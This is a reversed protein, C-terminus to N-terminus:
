GVVAYAKHDGHQVTIVARGPGVPTVKGDPDVSAVTVDSSYYVTGTIGLSLPREVGNSYIGKVGIEEQPKPQASLEETSFFLEDKLIFIRAPPDSPNPIATLTHIYFEESGSTLGRVVTVLKVPGTVDDPILVDLVVPKSGTKAVPNIGTLFGAGEWTVHLRVDLDTDVTTSDVTVQVPKGSYVQTNAPPSVLVEAYALGTYTSGVLLGLILITFPKGMTRKKAARAVGRV